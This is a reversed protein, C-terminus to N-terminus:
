LKTTQAVNELTLEVTQAFPTVKVKVYICFKRQAKTVDTNVGAIDCKAATWIKNAGSIRKDLIADVQTQRVNMWYTDIPKEIQPRMVNDRIERKLLVFAMVHELFSWDTENNPDQTTKSSVIMLGDDANYVIPNIGKKDLIQQASDSFNYKAKLVARDLQGGMSNYNYWAPAWGGMKKDFIRCCMKGVDGIPTTYYNKGTRSDYEEFEGVYQAHQKNRATVTITAPNNFEPKSIKKVSIAIALKHTGEVLSSLQEKLEERGTPEMFVYVDDYNPDYAEKWGMDCIELMPDQWAGGIMGADKNEQVLHSIYRQGQLETKLSTAISNGEFDVDLKDDVIRTGTFIGDANVMETFPNQPIVEVFSFDNENLVNPWFINGGYSDRGDSCISGHFSGGSTLNVNSYVAEAVSFSFTNFNIDQTLFPAGLSEYQEKDIELIMRTKTKIYIIKTNLSAEANEEIAHTDADINYVKTILVDQTVFNKTVDVAVDKLSVKPDILDPDVYYIAGSVDRMVPSVASPAANSGFFYPTKAFVTSPVVSFDGFYAPMAIDYKWKDYGVGTLTVQTKKESPSKQIIVGFTKEKINVLFTLMSLGDLSFAKLTTVEKGLIVQQGIWSAGEASFGNIFYNVVDKWTVAYGAVKHNFCADELMPSINALTFFPINSNAYTNTAVVENLGLGNLVSDSALASDLEQVKDILTKEEEGLAAAAFTAVAEVYPENRTLHISSPIGEGAEPSILNLDLTEKADGVYSYTLTEGGAYDVNHLTCQKSDENITLDFIVEGKSYGMTCKTCDANFTYTSNDADKYTANKLIDKISKETPTVGGEYKDGATALWAGGGIVIYNYQGSADTGWIGCYVDEIRDGNEDECFLKHNDKDIQYYYTGGAIGNKIDGAYNVAVETLTGWESVPIKEIFIAYTEATGIKTPDEPGKGGEGYPQPNPIFNVSIKDSLQHFDKAQTYDILDKSPVNYLDILGDTTLYKGGIYSPYENSGGAPASIYIGYERNFAIAEEVDPYDSGGLGVYAEIAAQNGKEFYYPETEGKPARVVMYGKITGAETSISFSSDIDIFKLRWSSKSAM